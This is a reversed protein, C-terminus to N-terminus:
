LPAARLAPDSSQQLEVDVSMVFRHKALAQQAECAVILGAGYASKPDALEAQTV